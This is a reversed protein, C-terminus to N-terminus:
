FCTRLARHCRDRSLRDFRAGRRAAGETKDADLGRAAAEFARARKREARRAAEEDVAVAAIAKRARARGCVVIVLDRAFKRKSM